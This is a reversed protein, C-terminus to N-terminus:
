NGQTNKLRREIIVTQLFCFIKARLKTLILQHHLTLFYKLKNNIFYESPLCPLALCPLSTEQIYIRDYVNKEGGWLGGGLGGWDPSKFSLKNKGPQLSVSIIEAQFM